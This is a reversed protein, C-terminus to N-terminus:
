ADVVTLKHSNANYYKGNVKFQKGKETCITLVDKDNIVAPEVVEQEVVPKPAKRVPAKAM